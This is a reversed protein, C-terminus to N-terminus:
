KMNMIDDGDRSPSSMKFTRIALVSFISPQYLHIFGGGGLSRAWYKIFDIHLM